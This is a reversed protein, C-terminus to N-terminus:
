NISKSTPILAIECEKVDFALAHHNFALAFPCYIVKWWSLGNQWIELNHEHQHTIDSQNYGCQKKPARRRITRSISM